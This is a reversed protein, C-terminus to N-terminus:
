VSVGKQHVLLRKGYAGYESSRSSCPPSRWGLHRSKFEEYLGVWNVAVSDAMEKWRHVLEAKSLLKPYFEKSQYGCRRAIESAAGCCDGLDPNRLTGVFSSYAPNIGCFKTNMLNCISRIKEKIFTRIWFNVQKNFKKGKNHNKSKITLDEMGVRSVQYHMMLKAISQCIHSIENKRKNQDDSIFEYQESYITELKRTDYVSIGIRNPNLDIGLYRFKNQTYPKYKDKFCDLLTEDYTINVQKDSVSFLLAIEENTAKICLEKLIIEWNPKLYPINFQYENNSDKYTLTRSEYDIRFRRNGKTNAQGISYIPMIRLAKWEANTILGKCRRIFNKKGGFISKTDIKALDIGRQIGCRYLHGDLNTPQLLKHITKFELGKKAKVYARRIIQTQESRIHNLSATDIAISLTKM